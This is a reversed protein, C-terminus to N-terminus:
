VTYHFVRFASSHNRTLCHRYMTELNLQKKFFV